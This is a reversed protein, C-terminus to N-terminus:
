TLDADSYRWASRAEYASTPIQRCNRAMAYRMEWQDLNNRKIHTPYFSNGSMCEAFATAQMAHQQMLLELADYLEDQRSAAIGVNCTPSSTPSPRFLGEVLSQSDLYGDKYARLLRARGAMILQHVNQRSCMLANSITGISMGLAYYARIAVYQRPTLEVDISISM